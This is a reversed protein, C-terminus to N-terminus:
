ERALQACVGLTEQNRSHASCAMFSARSTPIRARSAARPELAMDAEVDVEVGGYRWMWVEVDGCRWVEVGGCRWMEVGGRRWAEVGGCRM